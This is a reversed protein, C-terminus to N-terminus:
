YSKKGNNNRQGFKRAIQVSLNMGILIMRRVGTVLILIVKKTANTHPCTNQIEFIQEYIKSIKAVLKEVKNM